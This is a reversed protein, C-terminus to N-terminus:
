ELSHNSVIENEYEQSVFFLRLKNKVLITDSSYVRNNIFKTACTYGLAYPDYRSSKIQKDLLYSTENTLVVLHQMKFCSSVVAM